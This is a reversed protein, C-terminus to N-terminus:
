GLFLMGATSVCLLLPGPADDFLAMCRAHYRDQQNAM